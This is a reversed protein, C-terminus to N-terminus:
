KKIIIIIIKQKIKLPSTRAITKPTRKATVSNAKKIYAYWCRFFYEFYTCVEKHIWELVSRLQYKVVTHLFVSTDVDSTNTNNWCVFVLNNGKEVPIFSMRLLVYNIFWSHFFLCLDFRRMDQDMVSFHKVHLDATKNHIFNLFSNRYKLGGWYNIQMNILAEHQRNTNHKFVTIWNM